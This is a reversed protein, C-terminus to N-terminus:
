FKGKGRYLIECGFESKPITDVAQKTSMLMDGGPSLWNSISFGYNVKSMEFNKAWLQEFYLREKEPQKMRQGATVYWLQQTELSSELVYFPPTTVPGPLSLSRQLPQKIFLGDKDKKKDNIPQETLEKTKANINDDM